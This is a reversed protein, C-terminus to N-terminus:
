KKIYILKNKRNHDNIQRQLRFVSFIFQIKNNSAPNNSTPKVVHRLIDSPKVFNIGENPKTKNEAVLKM